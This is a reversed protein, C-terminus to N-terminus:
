ADDAETMIPGVFDYFSLENAALGYRYVYRSALYSCFMSKLYTEPVRAIMGHLPTLKLLSPPIAKKLVNRRLQENDWLSSDAIVLNLANIKDSVLDTLLYRLKGTRQHERWLCEFELDADEAIRKQIDKVYEYYFKPENVGPIVRMHTDFDKETLALASFVELSSSTVGGKNTSADKYLVVGAQELVMRADQTLFLNAGEVIIKWHAKGNADILQNVNRLSISEPRGGCPVFIDAACLPHVHFNNRFVTGHPVKEGNPLIVDKDEILVKFGMPSLKSKDFEVIMMRAKALRVLEERDLGQPDFIVGSGDIIAKTKDKSLLIENSGLDGDPGGTQVKWIDEEKLGLKAYAKLKYQRVSRTTMGFIDHPIGGMSLPKGTTFSRWFSYGKDRAYKAAWEMYEATGEDPGLFLLETKKYKDRIEDHPVLLDTLGSIYKQFADFHSHADPHVNIVGKSGFEPIDKNKKNQTFALGYNETFLNQMKTEYEAQSKSRLIRIGGRAIDQFRIHFGMFDSSMIFFFGFPVIPYDHPQAELFQPDMRFALASKRHKYLNTKLVHKNFTLMAHFIQQSMGDIRSTADAIKVLSADTIEKSSMRGKFDEFMLNVVEPYTDIARHIRPLSVAERKLSAALNRLRGLNLQHDKFEAALSDFDEYRQNIFYYIMRSAADCYTYQEAGYEGKLFKTTLPSTPVLHLMGFSQLLKDVQHMPAQQLYVSFVIIGNSFTEIFKRTAKLGCQKILETLHLLYEASTLCKRSFAFMVPTTGDNNADEFRRAVPALRNMAENIVEQYRERVKKSKEALFQESAVEWINRETSNLTSPNAYTTTQLVYLALQKPKGPVIGETALFFELNYPRNLPIKKIRTVLKREAAVIKYHEHPIMFLAQEPGGPGLLKANNEIHLWINEGSSLTTAFKKAALYSHIHSSLITADFRHFYFPQLGMHYFWDVEHYILASSFVNEEVLMGYIEEMQGEPIGPPCDFIPSKKNGFLAARVIRNTFMEAAAMNRDMLANNNDTVFLCNLMAVVAGSDDKIPIALGSTVGCKEAAQLHAGLKKDKVDNFSVPAGKGFCESLLGGMSKFQVHRADIILQDFKSQPMQNSVHCEGLMFEEGDKSPTWTEVYAFQWRECIMPLSEHLATRLEISTFVTGASRSEGGVERLIKAVSRFSRGAGREADDLPTNGFRDSQSPDGGLGLIYEVTKVSGNAAALHLPTRGDYDSANVSVKSELLSQMKPIDGRAAAMCLWIATDQPPVIKNSTSKDNEDPVDPQAHPQAQTQPQIPPPPTSYPTPKPPNASPEDRGKKSAFTRLHAIWQPRVAAGAALRSRTVRSVRGLM